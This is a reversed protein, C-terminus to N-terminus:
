GAVSLASLAEERSSYLEIMSDVGTIEFIRLVKANEDACVIQLSGGGADRLKTVAGMLVGITTSDIFTAASLDIVLRRRGAKIHAAIRERLQPSAAYDIEGGMALVAVGECGMDDVTTEDSIVYFSSM